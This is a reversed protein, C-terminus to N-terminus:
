ASIDELECLTLYDLKFRISQGFQTIKDDDIKDGWMSSPRVWVRDDAISKYVVMEEETEINTCLLLVRYRDGKKYHRYIKGVEIM